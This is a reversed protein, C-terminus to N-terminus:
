ITLTADTTTATGIINTFVARYKNGNDSATVLFSLTDSTAGSIAVWTTGGDTSVQWQVTPKPNGTAAAKFTATHGAAVTQDIPNLTVRPAYEVTLTAAASTVNGLASTFVARYKSGNDSAATTFTLMTSTAGAINTYTKGGNTSVQWQVTPAPTGSAAATFTVSNGAVITQSKPQTTVKPKAGVYLTSTANQATFDTDGPVYAYTVTYAGATLTSTAFTTSFADGSGLTAAQTVGNLTVNVTGSAPGGGLANDILTGSLTVSAKGVPITPSLLKSFKASAPNIIMTSTATTNGYNPDNSTFYATVTYTGAFSPPNSPGSYSFTFSGAVPTKGDSAFAQATAYYPYGNFTFPGDSFVIIPPPLVNFSYTQQVSSVANTAQVTYYVTGIESPGPAYTVVSTIPDISMTSPASVLSFTPFPNGSAIMSVQITQGVTVPPNSFVAGGWLIFPSLTPAYWTVASAAASYGSELGTANNVSTVVYTYGKGTTIGGETFSTSTIGSAILSYFYGGGSGKPDHIFTRHYVKYTAGDPDSVANWAVTISSTSVGTATVGTPPLGRVALTYTQSVQGAYNSAEVTVTNNGIQTPGPTWSIFGSSSITMGAPATTLTLTPTPNGTSQVQFSYAVNANAKPLSTTTITPAAIQITFSQPAQGAYNSAMVTVNQSGLQNAAPTWSVLGTAPNITMGAPATTLSYTAQPNGTSLVQYNYVGSAPLQTVPTTAIFPAVDPQNLEQSFYVSATPNNGVDFGGAVVIRGYYDSTVAEGSVAVPLATEVSWTNSSENYSEVKATTGSSTIGGLVYILGNSALIAGSSDTAVPLSAVTDWTNTAITYRYVTASIKGSADIGGFAFLHGAGDAAASLTYLAKPLPALTSWTNTSQHYVEVSALVAGQDNRGGIAYILHNEDTAYGLQWRPTHMNALPTTPNDTNSYDYQVAANTIGADTGNGGFILILGGPLVGVGPSVYGQDLAAASGMVTEWSLPYAGFNPVDATSGGIIMSSGNAAQIAAVAGRATPLSVGGSWTLPAPVDRTELLEVLLRCQGVRRRRAPISQQKRFSSIITRRFHHFM